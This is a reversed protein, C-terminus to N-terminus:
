LIDGRSSYDVLRNQHALTLETELSYIWPHPTNWDWAILRAQLPVWNIPVM